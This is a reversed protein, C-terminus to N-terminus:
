RPPLLWLRRAPVAHPVALRHGHPEDRLSAERLPEGAKRALSRLPDLREEPAEAQRHRERPAEIGPEHRPQRAPVLLRARPAHM